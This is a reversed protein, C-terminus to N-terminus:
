PYIRMNFTNPQAMLLCDLLCQALSSKRQVLEVASAQEKFMNSANRGPNFQTIQTCLWRNMCRFIQPKPPLPVFFVFLTQKPVILSVSHANQVSMLVPTVPRGSVSSRFKFWHCHCVSFRVGEKSFLSERKEKLQM